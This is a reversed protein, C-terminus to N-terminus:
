SAKKDVNYNESGILKEMEKVLTMIGIAGRIRNMREEAQLIAAAIWRKKMDGNRWRIVRRGFREFLSNLSEIPNTSYVSQYLLPPVKLKIVTLSEEMGELVSKGMDPNQKYAWDAFSKIAAFAKAYDMQAYVENLKKEAEAAMIKPAHDIINRKKHERCRQIFYKSFRSTIASHIAKGGDIVFLIPRDKQFGRREMDDFMSKIVEANETRGQRLSLVKKHGNENVGLAVIMIDQGIEYGDIFIIPFYESILREDFEELAKRTAKVYHRSVSSKEIGYASQIAESAAAYNRTSVGHLLKAMVGSEMFSDNQFAEYTELSVEKKLRDRTVIRPKKVQHKQGNIVVYGTKQTGHRYCESDSRQYPKGCKLEIETDIVAKMALLTVTITFDNLSNGLLANVDDRSTVLDYLKQINEPEKLRSKKEVRHNKKKPNM